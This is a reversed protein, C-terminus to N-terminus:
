IDGDLRLRLGSFETFAPLSLFGSSSSLESQNM